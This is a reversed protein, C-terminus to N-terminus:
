TLTDIILLGGAAILGFPVGFEWGIGCSMLGIGVLGLLTPSM